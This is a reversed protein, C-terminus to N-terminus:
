FDGLCNVDIMIPCKSLNPLLGSRCFQKRLPNTTATALCDEFCYRGIGDPWQCIELVSIQKLGEGMTSPIIRTAARWFVNLEM